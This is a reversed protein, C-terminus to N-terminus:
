HTMEHHEDTRTAGLAAVPLEVEVSGARAFDLTAAVTDGEALPEALGMFMVHYGGPELTVSGEAPIELGGDVERMRMVGDDMTTRHIEVRGAFPASGGVLRDPEDGDNRITMFGAGVEMGSPTARSWPHEIVLEGLRYEAAAAPLVLGATAMVAAFTAKLM